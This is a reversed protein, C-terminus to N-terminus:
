GASRPRPVTISAETLFLVQAGSGQGALAADVAQQVDAFPKMFMSRVQDDPLSTVAWIDARQLVGAIRAAQQVGLRYEEQDAREVADAPSQADALMDYLTQNEGLGFPCESVVILVGGDKVALAGSQIAKNTQYFNCDMPHPAVAVVVEYPREIDLVFQRDAVEVARRFTDDLGGAAAFGVRHDKDLVLQISYVAKGAIGIALAEMLDDHVPNGELILSESGPKMSLAHNAWVTKYGALGPFLSKRGGTYGAFYHPEVSNIVIVSQAEALLRNVHIEVGRASRGLHVLQSTDKADHSSIREAHAELLDRGFIHELERPLAVRHTGTAVVLSLRRAGARTPDGPGRPDGPTSVGGAALWGELDARIARLVEASPTPRTADNVVVLLPSAASALFTKLDSGPAELAGRLVGEPDDARAVDAGLVGAVRPEDVEISVSGTSWPVDVRM